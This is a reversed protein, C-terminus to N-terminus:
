REILKTITRRIAASSLILSQVFILDGFLGLGLSCCGLIGFFTVPRFPSVVLALFGLMIVASWSVIQKATLRYASGVCAETRQDPNLGTERRLQTLYHITNDVALGVAVTASFVTVSDLSIGFWGMVGFVAAVPPINPILCVLGLVWSGLQVMMLLTIILAALCMSKVQDNILEEAQRAIVALDGTVTPKAGGRLVEDCVAQIHDITRGIPIDPSNTIRVTLHLTDFTDSVYRRLNRRGESGMKLVSLLEPVIKPDTFLGEQGGSSGGITRQMHSLMPLLSDIGVMEPVRSLRDELEKIKEWNAAKRFAGPESEVLIELFHVSTLRHEVFRIDKVERTSDSLMRLVQPDSRVMPAGAFLLMTVGVGLAVFYRHHSFIAGEIGKLLRDLWDRVVGPSERPDLAKMRAFFAPTLVMALGYSIMVGVSMIFGLQHVMPISSVMLSGFGVSTTATCIFCPRALWRVAQKLAGIKDQTTEHFQHYRVVMHIVIEITTIPIFGFSLATTSNLPIGLMSMLGLVWVVCMVLIVNTVLTVRLSKFVYVSVVTGILLCLIGFITGTQINYRVIANRILAPGIVRVETGPLTRAKAIARIEAVLANTVATDFRWQDDVRVLIGLTKLDQSLLLDLIPLAKRMERLEVADPLVLQESEQRVIPYVGYGDGRRQFLRVTSLSVVEVVKGLSQLQGTIAELGSLMAPSDTGRDNSIAVLLFEENGFTATFKEYQRYAESTTDIGSRLSPDTQMRPVFVACVVTIAVIGIVLVTRYDVILDLRNPHALDLKDKNGM